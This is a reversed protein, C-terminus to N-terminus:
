RVTLFDNHNLLVHVLNERARQQPDDSPKVPNDDGSTFPVRFRPDALRGPQNELFDLCERREADTPPRCLLREFATAVFISLSEPTPQTNLEKALSGALRRAQALTLSSNVMALAQQPVVSESRRYCDTVNPSDFVELFTVKKEMSSRFYISRRPVALGARHDLDPGLMTLDLGRAVHLVSDRVVEAEMRRSNMRWLYVNEPDRQRNTESSTSSQMRYASSTVILRHIPKMSWGQDMLEVALWDLLGPHTPQKGNLGFDFVTPVLPSGFHRM